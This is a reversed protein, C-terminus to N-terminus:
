MPTRPSFTNQWNEGKGTARDLLVELLKGQFGHVTPEGAVMEPLLNYVAILGM